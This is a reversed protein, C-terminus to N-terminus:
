GSSIGVFLPDDLAGRLRALAQSVASQTLCLRAAAKAVDGEECPIEFIRLLNLDVGM